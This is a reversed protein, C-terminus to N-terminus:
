RKRQCGDVVNHWEHYAHHSLQTANQLSLKIKIKKRHSEITRPSLELRGAIQRTTLGQGIMMFIHWERDSLSDVGDHDLAEGKVACDLLRKAVTSGVFLDGHLIAHVARAIQALPEGLHLCGDAGARLLRGVVSPDDQRITALVKLPPHKEKLQGILGPQIKDQLPLSLVALKPELTEVKHLADAASEAEECAAITSGEMLLNRLGYRLVPQDAIVLVKMQDM